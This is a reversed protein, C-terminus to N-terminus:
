IAALKLDVSESQNSRRIEESSEDLGTLILNM